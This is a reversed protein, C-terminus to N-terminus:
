LSVGCGEFAAVEYISEPRGFPFAPRRQCRHAQGELEVWPVAHLVLRAIVGAVDTMAQWYPAVDVECSVFLPWGEASVAIETHGPDDDDVYTSVEIAQLDTM